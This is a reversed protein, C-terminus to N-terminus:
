AIYILFWILKNVMNVKSRSGPSRQGLKSSHAFYWLRISLVSEGGDHHWDYKMDAFNDSGHGLHQGKVKFLDIQPWAVNFYVASHFM